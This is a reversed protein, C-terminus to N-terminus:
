STAQASAGLLAEGAQRCRRRVAEAQALLTLPSCDISLPWRLSLSLSLVYMGMLEFFDYNSPPQVKQCCTCFLPIGKVFNDCSWCKPHSGFKDSGCGPATTHQHQHQHQQTSHGCDACNSAQDEEISPPQHQTSSATDAESATRVRIFRRSTSSLISSSSFLPSPKSTLASYCQARNLPAWHGIERSGMLCPASRGAGSGGIARMLCCPPMQAPSLIPL